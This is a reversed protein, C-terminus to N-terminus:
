RRSLTRTLGAAITTALVWGAAISAAALWQQWGHPNFAGEQGFGVVPLLLDVSYLFPNFPPAESPKMPPPHQATFAATAILLMLLLWAAARIPRYGYGVTWDQIHGWIRTLPPQSARQRRCKALLVERAAADDGHSVYAAALQEYPQPLYGGTEKALWALRERLPLTVEMHSYVFGDLLLADPWRTPVDALIEVQAHRFDVPGSLQTSSDTKLSGARVRKLSVRGTITTSALCVASAIHSSTLSVRGNSVFGDCLDLVSATLGWATLTNGSPNTLRASHFEAAAGINADTLVIHGQSTTSGCYLRGQVQLRRASLTEGAPNHLQAEALDVSGAVRTDELVLSGRASFGSAATLDGGIQALSADLASQGPANLDARNLLMPGEIAAGVLTIPGEATLGDDLALLGGVHLRDANLATGTANDLRARSLICCRSITADQLRLEGQSHLGRSNPSTHGGFFGGDVTLGDANLTAGDPNTIHAGELVFTGGIRCSWMLMEGTIRADRCVLDREVVLSDAHLAPMGEIHAGTLDMTGTLHARTLRVPSSSRANTLRLLGDITADQLTLGSLRSGSLDVARTSASELHLAEQFDCDTM